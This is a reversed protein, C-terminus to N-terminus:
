ARQAVSKLEVKWMSLRPMTRRDASRRRTGSGVEKKQGGDDTMQGRDESKRIGVESKKRRGETRQRRGETMQGRDEKEGRIKM